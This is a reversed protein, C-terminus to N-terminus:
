CGSTPDPSPPPYQPTCEIYQKVRFPGLTSSLPYNLLGLDQTLATASANVDYGVIAGALTGTTVCLTKTLGGLLGTQCNSGATVTVTSNPAYVFM